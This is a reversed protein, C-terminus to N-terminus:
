GLEFNEEPELKRIFAAFNEALVTTEYDCEQDIHVVRPEGKDGCLSYDLAVMDHGASPCDCVYLGIDPYGWESSWFDNSCPTALLSYQKAPDVGM